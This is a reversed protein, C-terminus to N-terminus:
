NGDPRVGVMREGHGDPRHRFRLGPVAGRRPAYRFTVSNRQHPIEVAASLDYWAEDGRRGSARLSELLPPIPPPSKSPRRHSSNM